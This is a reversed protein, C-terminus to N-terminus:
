LTLSFFFHLLVLVRSPSIPYYLSLPPPFRSIPLNTRVGIYKAIRNLAVEDIVPGMQAGEQGPQIASAKEVIKQILATSFTTNGIPTDGGVIVLVSAAM